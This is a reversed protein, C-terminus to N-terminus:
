IVIGNEAAFNKLEGRLSRQPLDLLEQLRAQLPPLQLSRIMAKVPGVSGATMSLRRVGVGIAAMADVPRGAMEGCLTVPIGAAQGAAAIQGLVKLFAPSVPDYRDGTLPNGRDAAFLFQALDNSGISLFDVVQLLAPLQYLLSPVELMAGVELRRPLGRGQRRLREQESMLVAKADRFEPVDTIMPFMVSLDRGAAAILLARVQTRLLAPRDLAIRVARWGMAPNAEDREGIYPLTKDGGVDLTRFVVPRSEAAELIRSYLETQAEVRPFTARVMFELETRYLGIGEAGIQALHPMDVLLGANMLLCIEAGDQTTAAMDRQAEYIARRQQRVKQNQQFAQLVDSAPRVYVQGHDGDVIVPDNPEVRGTVNRCGGIVPVGLARAVIAVHSMASGHELVIGKINARDFDLLEAPGLHEAFVIADPPLAVSGSLPGGGALHRMLRNALDELDALRDRLYPDALNEMRHRMDIQVRQVAAEATLGSDVAVHLKRLWGSDHAFMQYAELIDRSEGVRADLDSVMTGIADRMEAMATNLREREREPDEALARHLDPRPRHLVARGIALGESLTRGELRQPLTAEADIRALEDNPIVEGAGVFEALVMAITELTEIEEEAYNRQTRNQIALVGIIRGQRLLPVGLFSLFPEEGTEPRRAFKPHHQADSLALPRGRAAIDGILGEGVQLRTTGIAAANLGQTAYLVLERGAQLLYISCVEAVMNGAILRVIQNLRADGDSDGAMLTRLQRLLARPGGAEPLLAM